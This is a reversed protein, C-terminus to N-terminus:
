APELKFDSLVSISLTLYGIRIGFYDAQHHESGSPAICKPFARLRQTKVTGAPSTRLRITDTNRCLALYLDYTEAHANIRAPYQPYILTRGPAPRARVSALASGVSQNAARQLGSPASAGSIDETRQYDSIGYACCGTGRDERRRKPGTPPSSNGSSSKVFYTTPKVRFNSASASM